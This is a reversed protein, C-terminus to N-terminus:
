LDIGSFKRNMNKGRLNKRAMRWTTIACAKIANSGEITSVLEKAEEESLSGFARIFEDPKAFTHRYESYTM